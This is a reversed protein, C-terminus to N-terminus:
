QPVGLLLNINNMNAAEIKTDFMKEMEGADLTIKIEGSVPETPIVLPMGGRGNASPSIGPSSFTPPALGGFPGPLSQLFGLLGGPQNEQLQKRYDELGAVTEADPGQGLFGITGGIGAMKLFNGMKAWKKNGGNKKDKGDGDGGPVDADGFITSLFKLGSSLGTIMSLIKFVKYLSMAFLGAGAAWGAWKFASGMEEGNRRFAPIYRQMIADITIFANYVTNVIAMVSDVIGGAFEGVANALPGGTSLMGALDNFADTMSQGFDGQFVENQFNMWTQRLREMAVRNGQLAKNLAGGKNAAEAYYKAVFPMVKAAKLEGDEMMKMMKPIDISLDGFAERTAKLFVQLSGPIGEALQQKLEESMIQGKGMM